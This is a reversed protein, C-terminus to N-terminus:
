LVTAPASRLRVSRPLPRKAGDAGINVFTITTSFVHVESSARYFGARRGALAYEDVWKLLVGGFLYGHHNLHEPRVLTFNEM